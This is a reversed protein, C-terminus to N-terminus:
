KMQNTSQDEWKQINKAKLTFEPQDGHWLVLSRISGEEHARTEDVRCAEKKIQLDEKKDDVCHEEKMM